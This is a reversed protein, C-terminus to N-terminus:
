PGLWPHPAGTLITLVGAPLGAEMLAKGLMMCSGPAESAPRAIVSCGAALAPAIKRAPLLAPFNWASLALCPGIPQYIVALREHANRGPITQGYVRKAEEGCWEFQDAAAKVEAQAEMLPKGTEASMIQAAEDNWARLLDAAKRLIAAKEWAPVQAWAYFATQTTRLATTVDAASAAPVTGVAEETAPSIVTLTKQDSAPRWQGELLLGFEQYLDPQQDRKLQTKM